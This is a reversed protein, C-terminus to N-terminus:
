LGLDIKIGAERLAQLLEGLYLKERYHLRGDALCIKLVERCLNEVAEPNQYNIDAIAAYFAKEDPKLGDIYTELYQRSLNGTQPIRSLIYDFIIKAKLPQYNNECNAMFALIILDVDIPEFIKKDIVVATEKEEVPMTQGAASYFDAAFSSIDRYYKENTLDSIDHIFVSDFIYSKRSRYFYVDLFTNGEKEWVNRIAVNEEYLRNNKILHILMNYFKIEPASM